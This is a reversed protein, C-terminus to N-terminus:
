VSVGIYLGGGGGGGERRVIGPFFTRDVKESSQRSKTLPDFSASGGGGRGAECSRFREGNLERRLFM